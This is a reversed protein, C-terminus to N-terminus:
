IGDRCMAGNMKSCERTSGVTPDESRYSIRTDFTVITALNGWQIVQTFSGTDIQGMSGTQYRVPIWEMYAQFAKQFRVGSDGEDQDCRAADIEKVPSTRNAPCIPQHNQAGYVWANNTTEHDDWTAITPAARRLQRLGQDGHIYSAYRLRYDQLDVIEWKPLIPDIRPGPTSFAYKYEYIFDGVHFWVDLDEITSAVDYAHFYGNPFNSCSFVAYKFEKVDEDAAPATRTTGVDSVRTGDSFSFVYKTSSTLGTMDLKATWDTSPGVQVLGRKLNPNLKPDLHAAVALNPDVAAMRFELTVM